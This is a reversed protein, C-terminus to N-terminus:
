PQWIRGSRGDDMSYYLAPRAASISSNWPGYGVAFGRTKSATYPLSRVGITFNEGDWSYFKTTSGSQGIAVYQDGVKAPYSHMNDIPRLGLSSFTLIQPSGTLANLRVMGRGATLVLDSLGDVMGGIVYNRNAYTPYIERSWVPLGALGDYAYVTRGSWGYVLETGLVPVRSHKFEGDGQMQRSWALTGDLLGLATNDNVARMRNAADMFYILNNLAGITVGEAASGNAYTWDVQFQPAAFAGYSAIAKVVNGNACTAYVHASVAGFLGTVERLAIPGRIPSGLNLSAVTNGSQDLWFLKGDENGVFVHDYSLDHALAPTCRIAGGLDPNNWPFHTTGFSRGQLVGDENGSLMWGQFGHAPSIFDGGSLVATARDDSATGTFATIPWSNISINLPVDNTGVRHDDSQFQPWASDAPQSFAVSCVLLFGAAASCKYRKM